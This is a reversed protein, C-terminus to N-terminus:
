STEGWKVNKTKRIHEVMDKILFIRNTSTFPYDLDTTTNYMHKKGWIAFGTHKGYIKVRNKPTSADNPFVIIIEGEFFGRKEVRFRFKSIKM